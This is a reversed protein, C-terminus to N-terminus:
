NGKSENWSFIAVLGIWLVHLGIIFILNGTLQGSSWLFLREAWYALISLLCVGWVWAVRRKWHYCLSLWALGNVIAMCTGAGALYLVLWAGSTFKELLNQQYLVGYLRLLGAVANLLFVLGCLNSWLRNETKAEASTLHDMGPRSM